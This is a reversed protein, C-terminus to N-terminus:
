TWGRNWPEGKKVKAAYYRWETSHALDPTGLERARARIKEMSASMERRFEETPGPYGLAHAIAQLKATREMYLTNICADDISRGVTVIGHGKIMIAPAGGLARALDRGEAQDVILIPRPYIPVGAGYRASQMHVQAVPKDVLSLAVCMPAHAHVVAHVDPRARFLETYIPAELPITGVGALKKMSFDFHVLWDEVGEEEPPRLLKVAIGGNEPLRVGIHGIIDGLEWELIKSGIKLEDHLVDILAM